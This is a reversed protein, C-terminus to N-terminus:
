KPSLFSKRHIESTGYKKLARYHARTGYGKHIEFGYGPFKKAQDKMYRDRTVKAAISALAIELHKTDGQTVTKQNYEAPASLRGDLHIFSNNAGIQLRRLSRAIAVAIARTIGREDIMKAEVMSVTFDIKGAKRMEKMKEFIEERRSESLKKSDKFNRGDRIEAFPDQFGAPLVVMGVAVPGAIPGRGAEDIGVYKLQSLKM